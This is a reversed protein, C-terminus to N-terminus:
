QHYKLGQEMKQIAKAIRAARTEVSKAAYIWDVYQKQSTSSIRNFFGEALPSEQLCLSFETPIIIESNDAYLVVQVLDGEKKQLEKRISLKLPLFLQQGKSPWLKVQSIVVQDISGKVILWGFPKDSKPNKGDFRVYHWGGKMPMKEIVLLKNVLCEGM